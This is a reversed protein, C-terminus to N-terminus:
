LTDKNININEFMSRKIYVDINEIIVIFITEFFTEVAVFCKYCIQRALFLFTFTSRGCLFHGKFLTTPM